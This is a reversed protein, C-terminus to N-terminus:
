DIVVATGSASVMMMANQQGVTEYDLDIGIIANAGMKQAREQMEQVAKDRAQILVDEYSNSRGGVMDTWGAFFDRVINTGLIVEGYVIGKYEKVNHGEVCNTTTVIM